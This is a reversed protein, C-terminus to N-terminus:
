PQRVLRNPRGPSPTARGCGRTESRGPRGAAAPCSGLLSDGRRQVHARQQRRWAFARAAKMDSYIYDCRREHKKVFAGNLSQLQPIRAICDFRGGMTTNLLVPNNSIRVNVLRPMKALENVCAWDTIGCRGLLLTELSTFDGDAGRAADGGSYRVRCLAVRETSACRRVRGSPHSQRHTEAGTSLSATGTAARIVM